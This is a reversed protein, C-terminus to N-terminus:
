SQMWGGEFHKVDVLDEDDEPADEKVRLWFETHYILMAHMNSNVRLQVGLSSSGQILKPESTMTIHDIVLKSESNLDKKQRKNVFSSINDHLELENRGGFVLSDQASVFHLIKEGKEPRLM